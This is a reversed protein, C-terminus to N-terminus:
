APLGALASSRISVGSRGDPGAVFRPEADSSSGGTPWVIWLTAILSHSQDVENCAWAAGFRSGCARARKARREVPRNSPLFVLAPPTVYRNQEVGIVAPVNHTHPISVTRTVTGATIM